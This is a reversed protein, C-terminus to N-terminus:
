RLLEELSSRVVNTLKLETEKSTVSAKSGEVINQKGSRAAQVMQDVTRYCMSLFRQCFRFDLEYIIEAKQYAILEAYNGHPPLFSNEPMPSIAIIPSIPGM